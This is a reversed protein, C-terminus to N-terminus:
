IEKKTLNAITRATTKQVELLFMDQEAKTMQEWDEQTMETHNFVFELLEQDTLEEVARNDPHIRDLKKIRRTLDRKM